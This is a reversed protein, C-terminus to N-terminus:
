RCAFFDVEDLKKKLNQLSMAFMSNQSSQSHNVMGMLLWLKFICSVKMSIQMCLILKILLTKRLINCLFVLRTVKLKNPCAQGCVDLTIDVRLFRQYKKAPLFDVEDNVNGKLKQLFISFRNNQASQVYRVICVWLSVILQHTFSKHKEASLFEFKMGVNKQLYQLYICYLFFM